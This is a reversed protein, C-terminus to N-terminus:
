PANKCCSDDRSQMLESSFDLRMAFCYFAFRAVKKEKKRRWKLNNNGKKRYNFNLHLPFFFKIEPFTAPSIRWRITLFASLFPEHIWLRHVTMALLFDSLVKRRCFFNGGFYILSVNKHVWTESNNKSTEVFGIWNLCNTEVKKERERKGSM